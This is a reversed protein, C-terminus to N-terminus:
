TSATFGAAETRPGFCTTVFPAGGTSVGASARASRSRISVPVTTPSRSRASRLAGRRAPAGGPRPPPRPTDRWPRRCRPRSPEATESRRGPPGASRAAAPAGPRTPWSGLPPRRGRPQRRRRAAVRKPRRADRRVQGVPPRELVRLPNGAVRRRLRRLEVVPRRVRDREVLDFADHDSAGQPVYHLVLQRVLEFWTADVRGESVTRRRRSESRQDRVCADGVDRGGWGDRANVSLVRLLDFETATLQVPRGAVQVRRQEYHIVLDDLVFPETEARRRLAARM